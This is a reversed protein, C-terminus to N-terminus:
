ASESLHSLTLTTAREGLVIDFVSDLRSIEFLRRVRESPDAVTMTGAKSKVAKWILILQGLGYSDVYSVGSMNITLKLVGAELLSEITERLQTEPYDLRGSLELM